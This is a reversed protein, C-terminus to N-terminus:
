PVSNTSKKKEKEGADGKQMSEKVKRGERDGDHYRTTGDGREEM